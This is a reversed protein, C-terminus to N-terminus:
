KAWVLIAAVIIGAQGTVAIIIKGWPIIVKAPGGNVLVDVKHRMGLEPKTVMSGNLGVHTPGDLVEIIRKNVKANDRVLLRMDLYETVIEAPSLGTMEQMSPHHNATEHREM